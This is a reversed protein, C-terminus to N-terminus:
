LIPRGADPYDTGFAMEKGAEFEARLRDLKAGILRQADSGLIVWHRPQDSAVVRYIAAAARV